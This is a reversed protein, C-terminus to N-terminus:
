KTSPRGRKASAKQKAVAEIEGEAWFLDQGVRLSPRLEPHRNILVILALRSIGVRGAVQESTFLPQGNKAFLVHTEDSMTEGRIRIM